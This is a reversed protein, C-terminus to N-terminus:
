SASVKPPWGSRSLGLKWRSTNVSRYLVNDCISSRPLDSRLHRKDVGWRDNTPLSVDPQIQGMGAMGWRCGLPRLYTIEPREWVVVGSVADINLASPPLGHLRSLRM